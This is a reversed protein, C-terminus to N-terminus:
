APPACCTVRGGTARNRSGFATATTPSCARACTSARIYVRQHRRDAQSRRGDHADRASLQGTCGQASRLRSPQLAPPAGPLPRCAQRAPAASRQVPLTRRRSRRAHVRRAPHRQEGRQRRDVHRTAVVRRAPHRHAAAAAGAQQGHRGPGFRLHRRRRPGRSLRSSCNNTARVVTNRGGRTRGALGRTPPLRTEPALAQELDAQRLAMHTAPPSEGDPQRDPSPATDEVISHSEM